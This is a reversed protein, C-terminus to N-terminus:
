FFSVEAKEAETQIEEATSIGMMSILMFVADAFGIISKIKRRM